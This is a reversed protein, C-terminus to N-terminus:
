RRQDNELELCRNSELLDICHSDPLAIINGAPHSWLDMYEWWHIGLDWLLSVLLAHHFCFVWRRNRFIAIRNNAMMVLLCQHITRPLYDLDGQFSNMVKTPRATFLLHAMGSSLLVLYKFAEISRTWLKQNALTFSNNLCFPSFNTLPICGPRQIWNSHRTTNPKTHGFKM